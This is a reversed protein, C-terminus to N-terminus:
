YHDTSNQLEHSCKRHEQGCFFIYFTAPMMSLNVDTVSEKYSEFSTSYMVSIRGQRHIHTQWNDLNDSHMHTM